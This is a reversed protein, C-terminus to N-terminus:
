SDRRPGEGAGAGKAAHEAGRTTRPTTHSPKASKTGKACKANGKEGRREAGTSGQQVKAM